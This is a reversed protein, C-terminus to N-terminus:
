RTLPSPPYTEARNRGLTKARYLATDAERVLEDVTEGRASDRGACGISTTVGISEGRFEVKAGAVAARLREAAAGAEVPGVGPLIALFEEGGYRGLLDSARLSGLCASAAAALVADGAQHGYTDNVTKFQDLDLVLFSIAEGQRQARGLEAAARELVTRRNAVGTLGDTTALEELRRTLGVRLTIDNLSLISGVLRGRRGRIPSLSASFHRAASAEGIALDGRAPPAESVFAALEKRGELLSGSDRGISAAGDVGLIGAMAPNINVVRGKLDLVLVGEGMGEFIHEYAVPGLDILRHRFLSWSFILGSITLCFPAIDLGYPSAGAQFIAMGSWPFLSAIFLMLAQKRYIGPARRARALLVVDAAALCANLVALNVWYLPGHGLVSISFAGRRELAMSSYFLGHLDNTWVMALIVFSEAFLCSMLISVRRSRIGSTELALLLWLPGVFSVGLYEVSLWLHLEDVTVGRIEFISGFAYFMGAAM